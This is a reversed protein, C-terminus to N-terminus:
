HILRKSTVLFTFANLAELYKIKIVDIVIINIMEMAYTGSFIFYKLLRQRSSALFKLIM